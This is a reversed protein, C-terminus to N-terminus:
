QSPEATGYGSPMREAKDSINYNSPNMASWLHLGPIVKLSSVDDCDAGLPCRKCYFDPDTFLLNQFKRTQNRRDSYSLLNIGQFTQPPCQRCLLQTTIYPQVETSSQHSPYQFLATASRTLAVRSLSAGINSTAHPHQGISCSFDIDISNSSTSSDITAIFMETFSQFTCNQKSNRLDVIRANTSVIVPAYGNGRVSVIPISCTTGTVNEVHDHGNIGPGLRKRAMRMQADHDNFELTTILLSSFISGCVSSVCTLLIDSALYVATNNNFVCSVISIFGSSVLSAALAYNATLSSHSLTLNTGFEAYIASGAGSAVNKSFECSTISHVKSSAIANENFLLAGGNSFIRNFSGIVPDL